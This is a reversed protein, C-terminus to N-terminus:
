SENVKEMNMLHRTNESGVNTTRGDEDQSDAPNPTKRKEEEGGGRGGKGRM